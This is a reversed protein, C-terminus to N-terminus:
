IIISSSPQPLPALGYSTAIKDALPDNKETDHLAAIPIHLLKNTLQQGLRAIVAEPSQGNALDRLARTTETQTIDQATQKLQFILPIHRRHRWWDIFENVKHLIMSEAHCAAEERKQKGLQVISGLDDISYLTVGELAAVAPDIDRPVALDIMLLASKQNAEIATHISNASILADPSATCSIVIDYQGIQEDTLNSLAIARASLNEAIAKARDLTRNAITINAFGLQNLSTSCSVIMEGAGILLIPTNPHDFSHKILNIVTSPVSLSHQGIQTKHRIQKAAALTSQYVSKLWKGQAGIHRSAEFAQKIQKIIQTEGLMMSDLGCAVRFLHILAEKGEYIYLYPLINARSLGSRMSLWDIISEPSDACTYCEFRNCTSLIVAESLSTQQIMGLLVSETKGDDVSFRERISVSAITHNSGIVFFRVIIVFSFYFVFAVAIILCASSLPLM